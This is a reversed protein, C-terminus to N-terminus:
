MTTGCAAYRLQSGSFRRWSCVVGGAEDTVADSNPLFSPFVCLAGLAFLGVVLVKQRRRMRLGWTLPIPLLYICVDTFIDVVAHVVLGVRTDVCREGPYNIKFVAKVPRCQLAIAVTFGSGWVMIVVMLTLIIRRSAGSNTGELLRLYFICLSLKTLTLGATLIIETIWSALLAHERIHLPVDWAHEGWGFHTVSLITLTIQCLFLLQLGEIV